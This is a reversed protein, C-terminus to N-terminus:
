EQETSLELRSLFEPFSRAVLILNEGREALQETDALFDWVYVKGAHEGATFLCLLNNGCRAIPIAIEPFRHEYENWNSFLDDHKPVDVGFLAEPGCDSIWEYEQLPKCSLTASFRGGNTALLFQAYERPLKLGIRKELEEIAAVTTPPNPIFHSQVEASMMAPNPSPRHSNQCSPLVLLLLAITTVPKAKM